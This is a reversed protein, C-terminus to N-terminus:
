NTIYMETYSGTPVAELFVVSGTPIPFLKAKKKEKKKETERGGYIRDTEQLQMNTQVRAEHM